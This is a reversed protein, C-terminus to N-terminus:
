AAGPEWAIVAGLNVFVYGGIRKVGYAYQSEEYYVTCGDGIDGMSGMDMVYPLEAKELVIASCVKKEREGVPEGENQPLPMCVLWGPMPTPITSM